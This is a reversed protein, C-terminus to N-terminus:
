RAPAMPGTKGAVEAALDYLERNMRRLGFPYAHINSGQRTNGRLGGISFVTRVRRALFRRIRGELEAGIKASRNDIADSLHMVAEAAQLSEVMAEFRVTPEAGEPGPWGMQTITPRRQFCCSHPYRNFYDKTSDNRYHTRTAGAMYWYDLCIRGIGRTSSYLAREAFTRYSALTVHHEGTILPVRNYFAGPRRNYDWLPPLKEDPKVRPAGYCFEHLVVSGHGKRDASYPARERTSVHCGRMWRAKGGPFAKDFNALVAEPATSDSLIGVCLAEPMGRKVLRAQTAALLPKWFTVFDPTDFRPARHEGTIRGKEDVVSVTCKNDAKIKRPGYGGGFWIQLAVHDLKGCHKVAMDLYKDLISFDYEWANGKKRYRIMSEPNGFQTEKAAPVVVLENGARGLLQWSKDLLKWHEESWMKVKYHDAITEPSNYISTHIRLDKAHPVVWDSVQVRIPISVSKGGASVSATGEYDGAKAGKPVAVRLVVPMAFGARGARPKAPPRTYLGDSFIIDKKYGNAGDTQGYLVTVASAPIVGGKGKLDSVKASVGTVPKDAAIGIQGCVTGNRAAVIRVPEASKGGLADPYDLSSVRHNADVAWIQVGPAKKVNPLAGGGTAQLKIKRLDVHMFYPACRKGLRKKWRLSHKGFPARRLDIALVNVGPKLLKSPLAVPGLNRNRIALVEAPAHTRNREKDGIQHHGEKTAYANLPHPEAEGDPKLEGEPVHGRAVEKGNLYVLVGGRYGLTLYLGGVASPNNVQFRARMCYRMRSWRTTKHAVMMATPTRPWSSDDYAPQMWDKDTLLPSESADSSLGWGASVNYKMLRKGVMPKRLTLHYRWFSKENLIEVAGSPVSVNAAEGALVPGSLVLLVVAIWWCMHERM